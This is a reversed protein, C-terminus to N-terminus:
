CACFFERKRERLRDKRLSKWRDAFSRRLLRSKLTKSGKRWGLRANSASTSRIRFDRQVFADSLQRRKPSSSRDSKSFCSARYISVRAAAAPPEISRERIGRRRSVPTNIIRGRLNGSIARERFVRKSPELSYEGSLRMERRCLRACRLSASITRRFGRCRNWPLPDRPSRPKSLVDIQLGRQGERHVCRRSRAQRKMMGRFFKSSPAKLKQIVRAISRSRWFARNPRSVGDPHYKAGSSTTNSGCFESLVEHLKRTSDPLLFLSVQVM